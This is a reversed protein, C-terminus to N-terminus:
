PMRFTRRYEAPTLDTLRKFTTSFHAQSSFGAALAVAALPAASSALERCAFEIRLRRVYDGITRGYHKHFASALYVPHVGVIDALEALTPPATFGAHLIERARELWPPPIRAAAPLTRRSMAAAIALALGEIALPSVDDIQQFERYLQMALCAARGGELSTPRDLRASLESVRTMWSADPEILFCHGGARSIRDTHAEEPPRFLVTSPRCLVATREFAEEYSGGLVLCFCALEHSHQPLTLDASYITETLVFGSIRRSSSITGHHSGSPLPLRM